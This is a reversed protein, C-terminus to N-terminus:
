YTSADGPKEEYARLRVTGKSWAADLLDDSLMAIAHKGALTDIISIELRGDPLVRANGTRHPGPTDYGYFDAITQELFVPATTGVKAAPSSNIPTLKFVTISRM